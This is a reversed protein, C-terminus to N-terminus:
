GVNTVSQKKDAFLGSAQGSYDLPPETSTEESKREARNHRLSVTQALQEQTEKSFFPMGDVDLPTAQKLLQTSKEMQLMATQCTSNMKDLLITSDDLHEAVDLKYQALADESNSVRASLKQNDQVSASLFRSAVFGIAAGVLLLFIALVIDM